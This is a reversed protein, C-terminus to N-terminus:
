RRPPVVPQQPDRQLIQQAVRPLEGPPGLAGADLAAHSAVVVLRYVPDAVVPGPEVHRVGIPEEARERPQAGGGLKGAGAHPERDHPADDLAMAPADPGLARRPLARRQIERQCSCPSPPSRAFGHLRPARRTTIGSFTRITSSESSAAASIRRSSRQPPYSGVKSRTSVSAAIRSASARPGHCTTM